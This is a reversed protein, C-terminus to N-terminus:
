ILASLKDLQNDLYKDDRKLRRQLIGENALKDARTNKERYIHKYEINNFQKSLENAIQNSYILNPSSVKYEGKMQKIVIESDGKVIIKKIKLNIANELGFILGKYEAVNNTNIDTYISDAWIEQKNKYIVAGSGSIGPNGKSAGDFYLYYKDDDNANVNDNANANICNQNFRLKMNPELEKINLKNKIIFNKWRWLITYLNDIDNKIYKAKIIDIANSLDEKFIIESFIDTVDVLKQECSTCNDCTIYNTPENFYDLMYKRKCTNTYVYSWVKSLNDLKIKCLSQYKSFTKSTMQKKIMFQKKDFFFITEAPKVDRGARGIMQTYEEISSTCGFIIVCKVIQDIGMGFAITSVIINTTGNAFNNHIKDRIKASLGAHYAESLNPNNKNIDISLESTNIRSNVYIIIKQNKYKELYPQVVISPDIQKEVVKKKSIVQETPMSCVKLYLNPRDFSAKIIKPNDLKLNDKIDKCVNATATATVAIMPINPYEDRIMKIEKYEPRFDHGWSSICHAEDIAIFGLKNNDNLISVLEKGNGKVLYEPSMYVIKIVGDIIAYTEEDKNKNNCHLASCKIGKNQLSTKQDDMLSILPSIIIMVKRTLLPPLIYCMSKGYGTPLLGIVDNGSLLEDIVEIQKDKLNEINWYKLLYKKAKDTWLM